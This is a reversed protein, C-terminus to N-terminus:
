PSGPRSVTHILWKIVRKSRGTSKPENMEKLVVLYYKAMRLLIM